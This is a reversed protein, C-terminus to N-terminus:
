ITGNHRVEDHLYSKPIELYMKCSQHPMLTMGQSCDIEAPYDGYWPHHIIGHADPTLDSPFYHYAAVGASNLSFFPLWILAWLWRRQTLNWILQTGCLIAATSNILLLHNPSVLM